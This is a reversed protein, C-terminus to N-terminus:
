QLLKNYQSYNHPVFSHYCHNSQNYTNCHDMYISNVLYILYIITLIAVCIIIFSVTSTFPVSIDGGSKREDTSGTSQTNTTQVTPLNDFSKYPHYFHDSMQILQWCVDEYTINTNKDFFTDMLDQKIDPFLTCLNSINAKFDEMNGFGLFVSALKVYINYQALDACLMKKEEFTYRANMYEDRERSFRRFSSFDVKCPALLELDGLCNLFHVNKNYGDDKSEASNNSFNSIINAIRSLDQNSTRSEKIFDRIKSNPLIKPADFSFIDSILDYHQANPLYDSRDIRNIKDGFVISRTKTHQEVFNKEYNGAILILYAVCEYRNVMPSNPNLYVTQGDKRYPQNNITISITHDFEAINSKKPMFIKNEFSDFVVSYKKAFTDLNFSSDINNVYKYINDYFQVAREPTVYGNLKTLDNFDYSASISLMINASRNPLATNNIIKKYNIYNFDGLLELLKITESTHSAGTHFINYSSPYADHLISYLIEIDYLISNFLHLSVISDDLRGNIIQLLREKISEVREDSMPTKNESMKERLFWVKQMLM